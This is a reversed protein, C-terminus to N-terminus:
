FHLMADPRSGVFSKSAKYLGEFPDLSIFGCEVARFGVVGPVLHDQDM